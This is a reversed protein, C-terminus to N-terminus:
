NRLGPTTSPGLSLLSRWLSYLNYGCFMPRLYICFAEQRYKQFKIAKSHFTHMYGLVDERANTLRQKTEENCVVSTDLRQMLMQTKNYLRSYNSETIHVLSASLGPWIGLETARAEAKAM